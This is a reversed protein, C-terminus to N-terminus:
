FHLATTCLPSIHMLLYIVASCNTCFASVEENSVGSCLLPTEMSAERGIMVGSSYVCLPNSNTYHVHKSGCQQVPVFYKGELGSFSSLHSTSYHITLPNKDDRGAYALFSGSYHLLNM